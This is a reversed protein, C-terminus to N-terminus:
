FTLKYTLNYSRPADPRAPRLTYENNLFNKVVVGVTNKGFTYSVRGDLVWDGKGYNEDFYDGIGSIFYRFLDDVREMGSYFRANLGMSLFDKYNYEADITVLHRNRYKLVADLTQPTLKETPRMGAFLNKLYTGINQLGLTTDANLDIPYAYTYGATLQLNNKENILFNNRFNFELGAIRANSVNVAKFGLYDTINISDINVTDPIYLGVRFEIMDTYEQWFFALDYSAEYKPLKIKKEYGLESTWGFEPTVDPNPFINIPGLKESVYREALTPFRYAQGINFRLFSNKRLQYNLGYRWMGPLVFKRVGAENKFETGSLGVIDGFKFFEFRTGGVMTLKKWRKEIQAFIAAVDGLTKGDFSSENVYVLNNSLGTTIIWSKPFEKQFIYDTNFFLARTSYEPRLFFFRGKLEHKNNKKDYKTMYPDLNMRIFENDNLEAPKFFGNDKDQWYFFETEYDYTFNGRLGYTFSSDKKNTWKTSFSVRALRDNGGEYHQQQMYVHAGVVYEFYPSVKAARSFYTGFTLRPFRWWKTVDRAPKDLISTYFTIKTKPVSTPKVTQISITGNMASSGYLVSSAGKLVEIQGVSEMPLYIWKVDQRDPSLIAQGDVVVAVRSGVGYSWGSGSRINAQGDVVNLGPIKRALDDLRVSNTKDIFEPKIVEISIIETSADKPYLSGMVVVDDLFQSEPILNIDLVTTEGAKIEVEIKLSLYSIYTVTIVHKGEPLTMEYKGDVDSYAGVGQQSVLQVGTLVEKTDKDLVVGKLTGEGAISTFAITLLLILSFLIRM